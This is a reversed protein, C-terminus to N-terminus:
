VCSTRLPSPGSAATRRVISAVPRAITVVDSTRSAPNATSAVEANGGFWLKASSADATIAV